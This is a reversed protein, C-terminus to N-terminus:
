RDYKGETKLSVERKRTLDASVDYIVPVEAGDGIRRHM